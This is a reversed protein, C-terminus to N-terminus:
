KANASFIMKAINAKSRLGKIDVQLLSALKKLYDLSVSAGNAYVYRGSNPAKIKVRGSKPSLKYNLNIAKPPSPTKVKTKPPSPTKVKPKPPSPTFLNQNKNLRNQIRNM